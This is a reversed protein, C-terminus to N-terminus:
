RTSLIEKEVRRDCMKRLAFRVVKFGRYYGNVVLNNMGRIFKIIFIILSAGRSKKITLNNTRSSTCKKM